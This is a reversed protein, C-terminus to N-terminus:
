LKKVLDICKFVERRIVLLDEENILAELTNILSLYDPNNRFEEILGKGGILEHLLSQIYVTWTSCNEERMPLIKFIRGTLRKKYNELLEDPLKGYPTNM